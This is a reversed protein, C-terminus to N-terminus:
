SNAGSSQMSRYLWDPRVAPLRKSDQNINSQCFIYQGLDPQRHKVLPAISELSVSSSTHGPNVDATFMTTVNFGNANLLSFVDQSTYERNHRGYPGYGSYPDYVNEGAIIKRVNDLRAVNPTTLVLIGGPKLIRRIELLAHVPDSLLHEIIECFLVV